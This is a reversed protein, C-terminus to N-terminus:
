LTSLFWHQNGFAILVSERYGRSTTKAHAKSGGDRMQEPKFDQLQRRTKKLVVNYKSSGEGCSLFMGNYHGDGGFLCICFLIKKSGM